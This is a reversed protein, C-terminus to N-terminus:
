FYYKYICILYQHENLRCTSFRNYMSGVYASIFEPNYSDDNITYNADIVLIVGVDSIYLCERIITDLYEYQYEEYLNKDILGDIISWDYMKRFEKNDDIYNQITSNVFSYNSFNSNNQYTSVLSDNADVGTYSTIKNRIHHLFSCERSGFGFHIIKQDKEIGFSLITSDIINNRAIVKEPSPKLLIQPDLNPLDNVEINEM